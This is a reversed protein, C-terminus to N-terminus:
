KSAIKTLFLYYSKKKSKFAYIQATKFIIEGNKNAYNM